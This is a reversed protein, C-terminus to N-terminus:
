HYIMFYILVLPTFTLIFTFLLRRVLPIKEIVPLFSGTLVCGFYVVSTLVNVIAFSLLSLNKFDPDGRMSYSFIGEVFLMPGVFPMFLLLVFHFINLMMLLYMLMRQLSEMNIWNACNYVIFYYTLCQLVKIALSATQFNPNSIHIYYTLIL